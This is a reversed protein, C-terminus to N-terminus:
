TCVPNVIYQNHVFNIYMYSCNVNYILESWKCHIYLVHIVYVCSMTCMAILVRVNCEHVVIVILYIYSNQQGMDGKMM